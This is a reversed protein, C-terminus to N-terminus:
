DEEAVIHGEIAKTEKSGDGGLYGIRLRRSEEVVSVIKGKKKKDNVM